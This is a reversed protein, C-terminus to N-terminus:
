IHILSLEDLAAYADAARDALDNITDEDPALMSNVDDSIMKAADSNNLTVTVQPFTYNLVTVGDSEVTKTLAEFQVVVREPEEPQESSPASPPVSPDSSQGGAGCAALSLMSFALILAFVKKMKTGGKPYQRYALM